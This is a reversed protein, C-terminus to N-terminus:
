VISSCFLQIQKGKATFLHELNRICNCHAVDSHFLSSHRNSRIVVDANDLVLVIGMQGVVVICREVLEAGVM